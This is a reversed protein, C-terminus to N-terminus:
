MSPTATLLELPKELTGTCRDAKAPDQIPSPFFINCTLLLEFHEM